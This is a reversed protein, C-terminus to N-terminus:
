QENQKDKIPKIAELCKNIRDIETRLVKYAYNPEVKGDIVDQTLQEYHM